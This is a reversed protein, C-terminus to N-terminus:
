LFKKRFQELLELWSIKPKKRLCEDVFDGVQLQYKELEAILHDFDTKINNYFENNIDQVPFDGIQFIKDELAELEESLQILIDSFTSELLVRTNVGNLLMKTAVLM